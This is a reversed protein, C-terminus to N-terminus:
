QDQSSATQTWSNARSRAEARKAGDLAADLRSKLDADIDPLAISYRLPNSHYLLAWKDAEVPDAKVGTGDLYLAVAKAQAKAFGANAARLIWEGAENKFDASRQADHEAQALDLLCLGLDFQSIEAGDRDAIRRLIPVAKDCHGKLRLDEAMASPDRSVPRAESQPMEHPSGYHDDEGHMQAAAPASFGAAVLFATTATASMFRNM